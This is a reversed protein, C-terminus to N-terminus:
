RTLVPSLWSNGGRTEIFKVQDEDIVLNFM